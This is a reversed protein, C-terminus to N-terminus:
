KRGNNSGGKDVHEVIFRGNQLERIQIQQRKIIMNQKEFEREIAEAEAADKSTHFLSVLTAGLAAGFLVGILFIEAM